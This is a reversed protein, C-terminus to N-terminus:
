LRDKEVKIVRVAGITDHQAVILLIGFYDDLDIRNQKCVAQKNAGEPLMNFFFPFLYPSRFEKGSKPLSLSIAPKSGDTLWATHYCYTFTGDDHQTLMGVDENRFLIRAERMVEEVYGESEPM